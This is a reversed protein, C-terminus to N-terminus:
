QFKNLIVEIDEVGYPKEIFAVNPLQRLESMVSSESFGSAFIYKVEPKIERIKRFAQVGDMEPMIVDSIILDVQNQHQMFADLGEKGNCAFVLQAGCPELIGEALDRMIPEDDMVLIVRNTFDQM